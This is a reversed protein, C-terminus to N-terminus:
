NSMISFNRLIFNKFNRTYIDTWWCVCLSQQQFIETDPGLMVDPCILLTCTSTYVTCLYWFWSVKLGGRNLDLTFCFRFVLFFIVYLQPSFVDCSTSINNLPFKKYKYWDIFYISYMIMWNQNGPLKRLLAKCTYQHMTEFYDIDSQQQLFSQICPFYKGVIYKVRKIEDAPM